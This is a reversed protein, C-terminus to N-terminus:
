SIAQGDGRDALVKQTDDEDGVSNLPAQAGTDALANPVAQRIPTPAVFLDCATRFVALVCV